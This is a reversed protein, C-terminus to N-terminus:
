GNREECYAGDDATDRLIKALKKSTAEHLADFTTDRGQAKDINRIDNRLAGPAGIITENLNSPGDTRHARQGTTEERLM